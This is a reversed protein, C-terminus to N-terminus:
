TEIRALCGTAASEAVALAVALSHLGDEGTAAPRGEGRVAANFLRVSRTYLDEPPGPDIPQERDGRRLVIRGRPEQTMVDTAILSAETGHVEFGTPAHRITFADHFQALLGGRFRMVGMVADPLGASAMGQSATMATVEVPEDDLVFRLTDADHVTIDLIVGGGAAPRNIRWSQLHEPLYVAHFVRAAIPTGIAGEGILRRLTRHTVANRLHHNTGLVVGADRCVAVMQRADALTLALPKECLVHKGARAAAFTQDRHRENTTSVYVVDVAPDALLGAVSDYATPISNSRAFEQGRAPDSSAVAVVRSDSQANIARVMYSRAITSAGILGWGLQRTPGGPDMETGGEAIVFALRDEGDETRSAALPESISWSTQRPLL